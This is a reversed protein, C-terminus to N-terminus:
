EPGLIAKPARLVMKEGHDRRDGLAMKEGHSRLADEGQPGKEGRPGAPGPPGEKEDAQGTTSSRSNIYGM